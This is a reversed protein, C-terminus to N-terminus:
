ININRNFPYMMLVRILIEEKPRNIKGNKAMSVRGASATACPYAKVGVDATVEVSAM